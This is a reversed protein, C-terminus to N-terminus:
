TKWGLTLSLMPLSMMILTLPTSLTQPAPEPVLTVKLYSMFIYCPSVFHSVPTYRIVHMYLVDCIMDFDLLHVYSIHQRGQEDIINEGSRYVGHQYVKKLLLGSM